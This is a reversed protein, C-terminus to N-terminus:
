QIFLFERTNALAWALDALNLGDSLGKGAITMERANPRRSLYALYLSTIQAERSKEAYAAVVAHSKVDSVLRGVNGNMLQLVQPVSGDNTASDALLRDGQGFVRLFHTEPSPQPLESARALLLKYKTTPKEGDYGNALGATSGGAAKKGAGGKGYGAAKLNDYVQRVAVATIAGPPLAMKKLDDGRRLLINDANAGVANVILSDWTQEATLRRTIPGNFLYPGRSLDPTPSAAAQYAKSNYLVRQFERLDFRASKMVQELHQLLAPNSAESYVDIDDVPEQVALGFAKKWLRNAINAAFRPNQPSTMWQAFHNRLNAPKSVDIAYAPLSRDSKEWAILAPAVPSNPKADKYKYDKPFTLKQKATDELRFANFDAIRRSVNQPVPGDKGVARKIQSIVTEDKGDTAGFFAAMQYFDRQTWDALPHDHCQACAMNSGLFTTLLNSVGDLPMEADYLLFGAAGNDSLRGDATLMERVVCGM